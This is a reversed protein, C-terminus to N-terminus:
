DMRGVVFGGSPGYGLSASVGLTRPLMSISPLTTMRVTWWTKPAATAAATAAATMVAAGPVAAVMPTPVVVVLVLTSV